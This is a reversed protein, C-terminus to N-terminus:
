WPREFVLLFFRWGPQLQRLSDPPSQTEDALVEPGFLQEAAQRVAEGVMLFRENTLAFEMGSLRGRVPRTSVAVFLGILDDVDDSLQARTQVGALEGTASGDAAVKDILARADRRVIESFQETDQKRRDLELRGYDVDLPFLADDRDLREFIDYADASGKHREDHIQAGLLWVIGQPPHRSDFWTAGRM